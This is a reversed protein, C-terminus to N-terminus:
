ARASPLETLAGGSTLVLPRTTVEMIIIAAAVQQGHLDLTDPTNDANVETYIRVAADIKAKEM